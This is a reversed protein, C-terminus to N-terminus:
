FLRRFVAEFSYPCYDVPDQSWIRDCNLPAYMTVHRLGFDAHKHAQNPLTGNKVCDAVYRVQDPLFLVLHGGPRLVRVWEAMIAGTDEFDELAHSSFVYDLCKDKFWYLRKIDGVLHTPSPNPVVAREPDGEARDVCIASPSIAVGGFGLDLGNGVCFRLLSSRCKDVEM